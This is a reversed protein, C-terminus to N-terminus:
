CRSRPSSWPASGPGSRAVPGPPHRRGARRGAGRGGVVSISVISDVPGENRYPDKDTLLIEGIFVAFPFARLRALRRRPAHPGVAAARDSRDRPTTHTTM